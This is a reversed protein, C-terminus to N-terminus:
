RLTLPRYHNALDVLHGREDDHATYRALERYAEELGFRVQQLTFPRQFITVAPDGLVDDREFATLAARYIDRHLAAKADTTILLADIITAAAVLDAKVVPATAYGVYGAHLRAAAIRAKLRNHSTTPVREYAAAADQRTATASLCRALGFAAVTYSPDVVSVGDYLLAAREYDGGQEAAMALGLKAAPEGPFALCIQDFSSTADTFRHDALATLGRYWVVRWDGDTAGALQDVLADAEKPQEADLRARILRLQADVTNNVEDTMIARALLDASEAPDHGALAALFGHAPEHEPWQPEPLERWELEESGEGMDSTFLTSSAPKPQRTETAVIERLVGLLQERMEVATSFRAAPDPDTARLVLRYLSEYRAFVSANDPGPIEKAYAGRLDVGPVVLALVTRGMTYIDSAITPGTDPLEPAYYGPTALVGSTKDDLRRAAGLDILKVTRGTAMVNDPKMDNYTINRGHLYDLAQLAGSVYALMQETWAAAAALGGPTAADLSHSKVLSDLPSGIVYEMVIYASSEHSVFNYVKVIQPHELAALYQMEAAAETAADADGANLIGKLVVPRNAVHRDRGVYVWGRGGHGIPGLIEYQDAVLDGTALLPEFQYFQGCNPCHGHLRGPRDAKSRGVPKGCDPNSCYREREPIEPNAIVAQEAAVGLIEPVDVLGAGVRETLSGSKGTRGTRISTSRTLVRSSVSSSTTRVSGGPSPSGSAGAAGSAAPAGCTDCYGDSLITGTCGPTGCRSAM